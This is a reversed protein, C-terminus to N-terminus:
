LFLKARWGHIGFPRNPKPPPKSVPQSRWLRLQVLCPPLMVFHQCMFHQSSAPNPHYLRHNIVNGNTYLWRLRVIIKHTMHRGWTPVTAWLPIARCFVRESEKVKKAVMSLLSALINRYYTISFLDLYLHKARRLTNCSSTLISPFFLSQTYKFLFCFM